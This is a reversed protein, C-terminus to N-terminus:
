SRKLIMEDLEDDHRKKADLYQRYHNNKPDIKDQAKALFEIKADSLM